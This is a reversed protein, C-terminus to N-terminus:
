RNANEQYIRYRDESPVMHIIIRKSIVGNKQLAKTFREEAYLAHPWNDESDWKPVILTMESEGCKDADVIQRIIDRSIAEACNSNINPTNSEVFTVGETNIEFFVIILFLPAVVLIKKYEALFVSLSICILALIFFYFAVIVDPRSIRTYGTVACLLVEFVVTIILAVVLGIIDLKKKVMYFIIITTSVLVILLFLRNEKILVNFLQKITKGIENFVNIDERKIARARGGLLECLAALAWAGLVICQNKKSKLTGKWNTVIDAFAYSALIISSFLNSFIALYMFLLCFGKKISSMKHFCDLGSEKVFFMVISANLLAPIVYNYYCNVNHANLLYINGTQAIRFPLFHLLYFLITIYIAIVRSHCFREFCLKYFSFLYLCVFLTVVLAHSIKQSCVFDKAIPYLTYSTTESVLPMLIEPFVKAPNYIELSPIAKRSYYVYLWDDTDFIILPHIVGFFAFTILALIIFFIIEIRKKTKDEIVIANEM